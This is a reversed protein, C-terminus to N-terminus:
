YWKLSPGQCGGLQAHGRYTRVWFDRLSIGYPPFPGVLQRRGLLPDSGMSISSYLFGLVYRFHLFGISPPTSFCHPLSLWTAQCSKSIVRGLLDSLFTGRSLKGDLTRDRAMSFWVQNALSPSLFAPSGMFSCLMGWGNSVVGGAWVPLCIWM